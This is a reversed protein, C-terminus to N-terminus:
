KHRVIATTPDAFVQDIISRKLTLDVVTKALPRFPYLAAHSGEVVLM